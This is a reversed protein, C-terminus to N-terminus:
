EVEHKELMHKLTVDRLFRNEKETLQYRNVDLTKCAAEYGSTWSSFGARSTIDEVAMFYDFVRSGIQQSVERARARIELAEPTERLIEAKLLLYFLLRKMSQDDKCIVFKQIATEAMNLAVSINHKKELLARGMCFAKLVLLKETQVAV